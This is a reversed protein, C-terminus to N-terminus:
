LSTEARFGRAGVPLVFRGDVAAVRRGDLLLEGASSGHLVLAFEVRAHSAYGDGTVEALLELRDGARTVTFTTRLRAGSLAASTLGDDEQLQSVYTADELPVFLHLDITRPAYGDTSAPAEPWLPVVAGGRAYLPIHEMPTPALHWRRGELVAGTHWDHWTGAPLYVQRATQGAALVPAVLLDRGFLYEDDIDRVTADDQCDFVLPRQVPEGTEAARVFATYVYPLLRYRLRIAETVIRTVVEGWAWAYQAVNGKASHNRCFPTLVGYQMWRLFLEANSSGFFGGVDAGVFPQGSIGLGAAMPMSLWLHDWRSQNDGMWNAAYRQIGAFGARSLVFTRLEPRAAKLGALTGMAMLLGYQNHFREHSARGADFRMPLPSIDGTAPENMDNWIGAVGASVHEANLGGWWDRTKEQVFDPFAANGPWVEGIYVDGGETRCFHGGAVGEDFIRYGPDQKVGPDVITVVRFGRARLRDLM